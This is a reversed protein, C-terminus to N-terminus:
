EVEGLTSEISVTQAQPVSRLQDLWSQPIQARAWEAIPEVRAILLSEHWWPDERLATAGALMVMGVVIAAGRLFGFGAGLARDPGSFPTERVFRSAFHTLLAGLLLVMLFLGAYSLILRVSPTEITGSLRDALDGAWSFATWFALIWTALNFAERTFGRFMGILASVALVALIVFDVWNM